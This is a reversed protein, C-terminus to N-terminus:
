INQNDARTFFLNESNRICKVGPFEDILDNINEASANDVLLIEYSIGTLSNCISQILGTTYDKTNYNVISISLEIESTFDEM